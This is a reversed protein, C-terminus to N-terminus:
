LDCFKNKCKVITCFTESANVSPVPKDVISSIILKHVFKNGLLFGSSNTSNFHSCNVVNKVPESVYNVANLNKVITGKRLCKCPRKITSDRFTIPKKIKNIRVFTTLCM